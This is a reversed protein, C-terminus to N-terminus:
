RTNGVKNNLWYAIDEIEAPTFDALTIDQIGDVLSASGDEHLRISFGSSALLLCGAEHLTPPAPPNLTPNMAHGKKTNVEIVYVRHHGVPIDEDMDIYLRPTPRIEGKEDDYFSAGVIEGTFSRSPADGFFQMYKALNSLKQRTDTKSM